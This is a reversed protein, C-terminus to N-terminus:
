FGVRRRFESYMSEYRGSAHLAKLGKEFVEADKEGDARSRSFAIWFGDLSLVGVKEIQGRLGSSANIRLHAPATNMLVFDVRKARLMELLVRDSKAGVKRIKQSIHFEPTYTYGLTYGVLHGELDSLKLDKRSGGVRAFIALEEHFMPTPHWHYTDRNDSLLTTNFCGAVEGTKALYLCRSFPVVVFRVDVDQTAFAERVLDVAFGQPEASGPQISSYPPWDDEAAIVVTGGAQIGPSVMALMYGIWLWALCKARAKSFVQPDM